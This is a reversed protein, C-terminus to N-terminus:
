SAKTEGSQGVRRMATKAQRIGEEMGVKACQRASKEFLAYAADKDSDMERLMGINFLVVGLVQDCTERVGINGASTFWGKRPLPEKEAREIVSLAQRAWAEAQHRIEPTPPRRMILESLNNMIQAAECRDEIGVNKANKPLLLSIAQLYLPIAYEINGKKAYLNGLAALPAGLDDKRIWPPLELESLIPHAQTSEKTVQSNSEASWNKVGLGVLRLVEEVAWVLWKEEEETQESSLEALKCAIGVRRLREEDSLSYSEWDDAPVSSASLEHGVAKKWTDELVVRAKREPTVEALIAAIGSLKLYPSPSLASPSMSSATRYARTLYRESLGFDGQNKAKIGARLDGRLEEPWLTFSTYFQYDEIDDVEAWWNGDEGDEINLSGQVRVSMDEELVGGVEMDDHEDELLVDEMATPSTWPLYSFLKHNKPPVRGSRAYSTCQDMARLWGGLEMAINTHTWRGVSTWDESGSVNNLRGTDRALWCGVDGVADWAELEQTRINFWAPKCVKQGTRPVPTPLAHLTSVVLTPFTYPTNMLNGGVWDTWSLGDCVGECQEIETCFQTYNQHIYMGLLSSDIPSDATLAALSVRSTKREHHSLWEPLPSPDVLRGDMEREKAAEKASLHSSPPDHKRKNYLVKGMLHFLVLSQERRTVAELVALATKGGAITSRSRSSKSKVKGSTLSLPVACAFQLAMLASRVDGNSTEVIMDLVEKPPQKETKKSTRQSAFHKALLRHLAKTMLTPAIPNFGIRTVYPSTLLELGLATRIDLIEPRGWRRGSSGGDWSEDDPHEARLGSDSIIIVVPPGPNSPNNAICLSHLADKFRAQTPVHFLNPLDELLVLQRKRQYPQIPTHGRAPGSQSPLQSSSPDPSFINSCSMARTLFAQFKDFLAETDHRSDDSVLNESNENYFNGSRENMSNHWELIEFGLERSLVRVTTTKATGAPGTLALIRRYKRLKASPGGEFAELLWRRVDEVKRKHVALEMETTPEYKDVWLRDDATYSSSGTDKGKGKADGWVSQSHSHREPPPPTSSSADDTTLDFVPPNSLSLPRLKKTPPEARDDLRVTKLRSKARKPRHNSVDTSTCPGRTVTKCGIKELVIYQVVRHPKSLESDILNGQRDTVKLVQTTDFKVLAQIVLRNGVKPDKEALYIEAARISVVTVPPVVATMESSKRGLLRSALSRLRSMFTSDSVYLAADSIDSRIDWFWRHGKERRRVLQLSKSQFDGLTITKLVEENQRAIAVNAQRYTELAIKRLPALWSSPDHSEVNRLKRWVAPRIGFTNKLWNNTNHKIAFWIDKAKHMDYPRQMLAKLMLRIDYPIQVDFNAIPSGWIDTSTYVSPLRRMQELARLEEEIAEESINKKKPAANQAVEKPKVKSSGQVPLTKSRSPTPIQASPKPKPQHALTTGYARCHIGAWANIYFLRPKCTLRTVTAAM